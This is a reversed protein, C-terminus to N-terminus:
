TGRSQPYRKLEPAIQEEGIVSSQAVTKEGGVM